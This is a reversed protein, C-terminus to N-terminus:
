ATMAQSCRWNARSGSADSPGVIMTANCTTDFKRGLSTASALTIWRTRLSSRKRVWRRILGALVFAGVYDRLREPDFSPPLTNATKPPAQAPPSSQRSRAAADEVMLKKINEQDGKRLYRWVDEGFKPRTVAPKDAALGLANRTESDLKGTIQLGNRIQYRTIAAATDSTYIGNVEGSYFGGAKLRSQLARVVEDARLSAIGLLVVLCCLSVRRM